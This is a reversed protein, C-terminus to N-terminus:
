KRKMPLKHRRVGDFEYLANAVAAATPILGIEGVGKAGYPGVPDAVEIKEVIIQPTDKARLIKCDRLNDSVLFGDKMPLDETLAYGLGMHVAGEIQGEFMTPNMVKGADHAAVVKEVDGKDNLVALQAAYGYSYHTIQEKVDSGPKTTWDCLFRGKYQKGSLEKLSNKSLDEKLVKCADIIANGLLATARSSTTMGTKIAAESDVYVDMIEPNIGTEECLTQIAITHVGQGMETWGHHISVKSESEIKIIVDSFDPMGNGVGSNKIACAIGSYKAKTYEEKLANLCARIGVGELKQGTATALGDVLANDYRFQWRDFNGKICLEDICAELAFAVQNAGFGRMAGCPINNTYVTKAQLDIVPVFYGATAHGAVREMVKTGVSAYAGTDGLARLKMATLKGNKDCGLTIDMYVPHRKPHMRISEGRSLSLKVPKQLLYAFLSVHGQVTMDEKGGFGGGNPVLEVHVKEEPLNLISSVQRRDEYIGQSQTILKIGDKEPLAIAAEKELFAHEIRQTEFSGQYVFDSNKMSSDADGIRIVCNELVNAQNEHVQSSNDKAAEFIDTIPEYVSYDIHIAAIAERAIAETKAVVGCIVDGIYNTIQGEDIMLPWDNFILGVNQQGPIDKATFIKVVGEIKEAESFDIKLIKAKPHDSYKLASFLMGKFNIDDVFKRKGIATEYSQYKKLSTGVKGSNDTFEIPKKETLAQSALIIADVIKQYGTCRCLNLSLAKRIEQETPSLNEDFLIKTRMLFGPTCFGCQVAGKKVFAKAIIDLIDHPIGELTLVKKDELNKLKTTCSLKPKGDIEVLCAGCAGQGSCGDKVSTIDKELRLYNLLSIETDGDFKVPQNNLIFSIM